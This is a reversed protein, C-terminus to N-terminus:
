KSEITATRETLTVKQGLGRQKLLDQLKQGIEDMKAHQPQGIIQTPQGELLLMKDTLIGLMVTIDKLGAFELRQELRNGDKLYDIVRQSIGQVAVKLEDKSFKRPQAPEIELSPTLSNGQRTKQLLAKMALRDNLTMSGAPAKPAPVTKIGPQSLDVPQFPKVPV